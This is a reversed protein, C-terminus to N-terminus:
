RHFKKTGKAIYSKLFFNIYMYSMIKMEPTPGLPKELKNEQKHMMHTFGLVM